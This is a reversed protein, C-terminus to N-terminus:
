QKGRAFWIYICKGDGWGLIPRWWLCDRRVWKGIYIRTIKLVDLSPGFYLNFGLSSLEKGAIAGVQEALGTNWTAGIAMLDPLPTLGSLIQDNPYGDGDQSIGVFLPIYISPSNALTPAPNPTSSDSSAPLGQSSQWEADQLQSILQYAGSVTNPAAIFNDNGALLVVGGVHYRDILDVIQSDQNADAGTFTVLFLQGVREDPTMKALMQRAKAGADIQQLSSSAIVDAPSCISLALFLLIGISLLRRLDDNIEANFYSIM